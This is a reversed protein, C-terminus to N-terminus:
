ALDVTLADNADGGIEPATRTRMIGTPEDGAISRYLALLCPHRADAIQVTRAVTDTDLRETM